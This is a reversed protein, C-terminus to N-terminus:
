SFVPETLMLRATGTSPDSVLEVETGLPVALQGACHGFGLQWVIPVGLDGLRDALVERVVALDGCEVFSGLAIGAVEAFWGARRLHTVYRDLRYPEEGVDELLAIAGTRPPSVDQVGV